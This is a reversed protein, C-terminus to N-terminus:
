SDNIWVNQGNTLYIRSPPDEYLSIEILSGKEQLLWNYINSEKNPPRDIIKNVQFAVADYEVYRVDNDELGNNTEFVTDLEGIVKLGTDWEVILSNNEYNIITKILSNYGVQERKEKVIVSDLFNIKSM